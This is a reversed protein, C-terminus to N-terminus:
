VLVSLRKVNIVSTLIKFSFHLTIVQNNWDVIEIRKSSKMSLFNSCKTFPMGITNPVRGIRKELEVDYPIMWFLNESGGGGMDGNTVLEGWGGWGESWTVPFISLSNKFICTSLFIIALHRLAINANDNKIFSCFSYFLNNITNGLTSKDEKTKNEGNYMSRKDGCSRMTHQWVSSIMENAKALVCTPSPGHPFYNWIYSIHVTLFYM